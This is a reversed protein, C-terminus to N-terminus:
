LTPQEWLEGDIQRCKQAGTLVMEAEDASASGAFLELWAQPSGKRPATPMITVEVRVGEQFPLREQFRITQGYVTGSYSM